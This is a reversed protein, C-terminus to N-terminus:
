RSPDYDPHSILTAGVVRGYGGQQVVVAVADHALGSLSSRPVDFSVAGGRWQGVARLDGVVNHYIMTRGENEGAGINVKVANRLHFLWVTAAGSDGGFDSGGVWIHMAEPSERVSVPISVPSETGSQQSAAITAKRAAVLEEHAAIAQSHAAEHLASAQAFQAERTAVIAEREAAAAESRAQVVEIEAARRSIAAEVEADRSGVLDTVGDVIIQPTYVGGHGMAQAYAKQRRTNVESALTDKWGLMDWYTIPLSMALVGHRGSLRGLFEDAPPCSSCGQSTFLEVVVPRRPPQATSPASIATASLALFALFHGIKM